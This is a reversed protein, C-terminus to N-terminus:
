RPPPAGGPMPLVGAGVLIVAIGVAVYVLSWLRSLQARWAPVHPEDDPRPGLKRPTARPAIALRVLGSLVLVGGSVYLFWAPIQM